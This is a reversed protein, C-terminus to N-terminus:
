ASLRKLAEAKLGKVIEEDKQAMETDGLHEAVGQTRSYKAIAHILRNNDMDAMIVQEGKDNVYWEDVETM